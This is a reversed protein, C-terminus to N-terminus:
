PQLHDRSHRFNSPDSVPVWPFKTAEAMADVSTSEIAISYTLIWPRLVFFVHFHNVSGLFVCSVIIFHALYCGDGTLPLIPDAEWFLTNCPQTVAM